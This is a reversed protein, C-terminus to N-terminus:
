HKRLKLFIGIVGVVVVFIFAAMLIQESPWPQEPETITLSIYAARTINGSTAEVRVQYSGTPTNPSTAVTLTATFPPQGSPMSFYANTNPPVGSVSLQVTQPLGKALEVNVTFTLTTGKKATATAPTMSVSFDFAEIFAAQLAYPMHVKITLPNDKSTVTGKWESFVYGAEPVAKVTFTSGDDVWYSGPAPDTSGRGAQGGVDVRFEAHYATTVAGPETVTVNLRPPNHCAYRKGDVTSEIYEAYGVGHRSGEDWWFEALVNSGTTLLGACTFSQFRGEEVEIMAITADSWVGLGLGEVKFTWLHQAKFSASVRGGGAPVTIVDEVLNSLGSTSRWVYRRGEVTSNVVATWAFRHTSGVDWTFSVPLQSYSYEAGDVVLITGSADAGLGEAEFRVVAPTQQAAMYEVYLTYLVDAVYNVALNLSEGARERFTPNSWDYNQDMWVCTLGRGSSDFTTDYALKVAANYATLVELKGDFQLYMNFEANYSSTKGNVYSEYDEHHTEEGWPTNKGMVHGFVAVDSVYHTMAGAFKAASTFDGELMCTLTQRYTANARVASSDDMLRDDAYFYIHHRQTDGIGDSAQGNDPLETGYLYLAKNALIWQKAEAPLWDLAHEAIWDHTGYKPNYPNSSFGGNSWCYSRTALTSVAALCLLLIHFAALKKM